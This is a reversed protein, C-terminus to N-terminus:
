DKGEGIVTRRQHRAVRWEHAVGGIEVAEKVVALVEEGEEDLKATLEHGRRPQPCTQDRAHGGAVRLVRCLRTGCDHLSGVGRSTRQPWSGGARDGGRSGCGSTRTM